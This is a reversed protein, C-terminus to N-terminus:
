YTFYNNDNSVKFIQKKTVNFEFKGELFKKFQTEGILNEIEEEDFYRRNLFSNNENHILKRNNLDYINYGHVGSLDKNQIEIKM